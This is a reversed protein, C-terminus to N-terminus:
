QYFNLYLFLQYEFVKFIFLNVKFMVDADKRTNKKVFIKGKDTIFVEGQSICGGGGQGTRKISGYGLSRLCEEM